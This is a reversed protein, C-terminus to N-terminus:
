DLSVTASRTLVLRKEAFTGNAARWRLTVPGRRAIAFFAPSSATVQRCGLSLGSSTAEVRVASGGTKAQLVTLGFGRPRVPATRCLVLDGELSIAVVEQAGDDDFDAVASAQQGRMLPRLDPFRKDTFDLERAFGFCFYGRGFFPLPGQDPYFLVFEEIGDNNLDCSSAAFPGPKGAYATEGSHSIHSEFFGASGTNRLLELSNEGGVLIDARGDNDYDGATACLVQGVEIRGTASPRDPFGSESTLWLAWGNEVFQLVDGFGNDDFDAALCLGGVSGPIADALGKFKVASASDLLLGIAVPGAPTAAIAFGQSARTSGLFSLGSPKVPLDYRLPPRELGNTGRTFIFATSNSVSVLDPKRDGDLDAWLAQDSRTSMVIGTTVDSLSGASDPAFMRDGQDCLVHLHTRGDIFVPACAKIRGEIRALTRASTWSVGATAPVSVAKGHALIDRVAAALMAPSGNWVAKMDATDERVTHSNDSGRRIAAWGAPSLLLVLATDAADSATAEPFFALATITGTPSLTNLAELVGRSPIIPSPVSAHGKLHVPSRVSVTGNTELYLGCSVISSSRGVLDVPTFNPNILAPVATALLPLLIAAAAATRM